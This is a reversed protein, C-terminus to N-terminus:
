AAKRVDALHRESRGSGGTAAIDELDKIIQEISAM